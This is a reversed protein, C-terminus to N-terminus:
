PDPEPPPPHDYDLCWLGYESPTATSHHANGNVTALQEEAMERRGPEAALQEEIEKRKAREIRYQQTAAKVQAALDDRDKVLAAVEDPEAHDDDDTETAESETTEKPTLFKRAAQRWSPWQFRSSLRAETEYYALVEDAVKGLNYLTHADKKRVNAHLEAYQEYNKGRKSRYNDAWVRLLKATELMAELGNKDAYDKRQRLDDLRAGIENEGPIIPELAAEPKPKVHTRRVCEADTDTPFPPSPAWPPAGAIPRLPKDDDNM